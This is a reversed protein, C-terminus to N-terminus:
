DAVVRLSSQIRQCLKEASLEVKAEQSEPNLRRNLRRRSKRAKKRAEKRLVVDAGATVTNDSFVADLVTSSIQRSAGRPNFRFSVNVVGSASLSLTPLSCETVAQDSVLSLTSAVQGFAEGQLSASVRRGSARRLIIKGSHAPNGFHTIVGSAGSYAGTLTKYADIRGGTAVAGSLSALVDVGDLVAGKVAEYGSAGEVSLYLGALGAVHPAAMSTGSMYGYRGGPLTSRINVGPAAVDVSTAGYNSFYALNDDQDTAAVAVVNELDFGSPYHPTSDTDTASNGAAAVFLVGADRARSVADFLVQSFGTGGFSASIVRAGNQVAYDVGEAATLTSGSGKSSLFKVAMISVNWNVGAVGVGNDGVGGITGACHTGHGHDDMPDSDNNYFDYGVNGDGDHWMNAELDPHSYDVGTDLVAVVVESSGTSVAWASEASIRQMAYLDSYLADNPVDETEVVFEPECISLAARQALAACVEAHESASYQVVEGTRAAGLGQFRSVLRRISPAAGRRLTKKEVNFGAQSLESDIVSDPEVGLGRIEAPVVVYHGKFVQQASLLSPFSFLILLAVILCASVLEHFRQLLVAMRDGEGVTKRNFSGGSAGRRGSGELYTLSDNQDRPVTVFPPWIGDARHSNRIGALNRM